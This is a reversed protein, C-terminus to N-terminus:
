EFEVTITRETNNFAGDVVNGDKDLLHLTIIYNGNDLGTVFAPKWDSITISEGEKGSDMKKITYKAKYGEPSLEVNNLYFDLMIKKAGEGKYTGKPRSYIITPKSKDLMFEGEDTGIYFNVINAAGQSKVSEHYSRSPFVVLTHAGSQIEGLDFPKGAEYNAFYPNNDLIIHAHQGKASNAIQKARDTETQIGFEYNEADVIVSLKTEDLIDGDKLNLFEAKANPFAPSREGLEIKIRNTEGPTEPALDTEDTMVIKEEVVVENSPPATQECGFAAFVMLGFGTLLLVINYKKM